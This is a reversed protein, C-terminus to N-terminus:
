LQVRYGIARRLIEVIYEGAKGTAQPQPGPVPVLMPPTGRRSSRLIEDPIQDYLEQEILVVGVDGRAVIESLRATAGAADTVEDVDIGALQFGAAAPSRCLVAVAGIM